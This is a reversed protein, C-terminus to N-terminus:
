YIVFHIKPHSTGNVIRPAQMNASRVVGHFLERLICGTRYSIRCNRSVADDFFGPLLGFTDDCLRMCM